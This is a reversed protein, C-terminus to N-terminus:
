DGARSDGLALLYDLYGQSFYDNVIVARLGQKRAGYALAMAAMSLFGEASWRLSGHKAIGEHAKLLALLATHLATEDRHTLAQLAQGKAYWEKWSRGQSGLAAVAPGIADQRALLVDMLGYAYLPGVFDGTRSDLRYGFSSPM